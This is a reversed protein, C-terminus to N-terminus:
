VLALHFNADTLFMNGIIYPLRHIFVSYISSILFRECSITLLNSLCVYKQQGDIARKVTALFGTNDGAEVMASLQIVFDSKKNSINYHVMM